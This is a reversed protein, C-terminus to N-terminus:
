LKARVTSSSNVGLVPPTMTEGPSPIPVSSNHTHANYQSAMTAIVAIISDLVVGQVAAPGLTILGSAVVDMIGAATLTITNAGATLIIGAANMVITSSGQTITITGSADLTISSSGDTITTTGAAGNQIISQTPSQRITNRSNAQDLEIFRNVGESITTKSSSADLEISRPDSSVNDTNRITLKETAKNLEVFQVTHPVGGTNLQPTALIVRENGPTDDFLLLHGAPTKMLRIYQPDTVEEPIAGQILWAGLYIPRGTFGQDFGVLVTSGVVPLAFFGHTKLGNPATLDVMGGWPFAPEAWPCADDPVGEGPSGVLSRSDENPVNQPQGSGSTAPHLLTIRVQVRGQKKPDNVSVVTGRYLGSRYLNKRWPTPDLFVEEPQIRSM